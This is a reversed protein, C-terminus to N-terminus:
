KGSDNAFREKESQTLNLVQQYVSSGRMAYEAEFYSYPTIGLQYDSKAPLLIPFYFKTYNFDLM